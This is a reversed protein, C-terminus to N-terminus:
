GEEAPEESTSTRGHLRNRTDQLVAATIPRDSAALEWLAQYVKGARERRLLHDLLSRDLEGAFARLMTVAQAGHGTHGTQDFEVLRGVLVVEKNVVRLTYPGVAYEGFPDELRNGPVEVFFGDRSWHRGSAGFGLAAFAEHLRRREPPGTRSEVVLDVDETAYAGPAHFEIAGGGVLIARMGHRDLAESIVACALALLRGDQGPQRLTQDTLIEDLEGRLEDLPPLGDSM